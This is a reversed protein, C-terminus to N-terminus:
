SISVEVRALGSGHSPEFGSWVSSRVGRTLQIVGRRWQVKLTPAQYSFTTAIIKMVMRISPARILSGFHHLICFFAIKAFFVILM